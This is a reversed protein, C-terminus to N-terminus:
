TQVARLPGTGAGAPVVRSAGPASCVSQWRASVSRVELWGRRSPSNSKWSPNYAYSKQCRDGMLPSLFGAALATRHSAACLFSFVYSPLPAFAGETAWKHSLSSWFNGIPFSAPAVGPVGRGARGRMHGWPQGLKPTLWWTPMGMGHRLQCLSLSSKTGDTCPSFMVLSCIDGTHQHCRVRLVRIAGGAARARSCPSTLPCWGM